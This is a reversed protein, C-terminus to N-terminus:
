APKEAVIRPDTREGFEPLWPFSVCPKREQDLPDRLDQRTFAEVARRARVAGGARRAAGAQSHSLGRGKGTKLAFGIGCTGGGVRRDLREPGGDQLPRPKPYFSM